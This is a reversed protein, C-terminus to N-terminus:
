DCSQFVAKTKSLFHDLIRTDVKDEFNVQTEAPKIKPKDNLSTKSPRNDELNEQLASLLSKTISNFAM